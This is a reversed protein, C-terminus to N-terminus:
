SLDGIGSFFSLISNFFDVIQQWFSLLVSLFGETGATEGCVDCVGDEDEDIHGASNTDTITTTADCDDCTCTVTWYGDETCTPDTYAATDTDLVFDSQEFSHGTAPIVTEVEATCCSYTTKSLGDETCTAPTEITTATGEHNTPDLPLAVEEKYDCGEVECTTITSGQTCCTSPTTTVVYTHDETAALEITAADTTSSQTGVTLTVTYTYVGTACCTPAQYEEVIIEYDVETEEGIATELEERIEDVSTATTSFTALATEVKEEAAVAEALDAANQAEKEAETAADNYADKSGENEVDISTLKCVECTITWYGNAYANAPTYNDDEETLDALVYNYVCAGYTTGYVTTTEDCDACKVNTWTDYAICTAATYNDGSKELTDATAFTHKETAAITITAEDTTATQESVTLTVTYKYYGDDGCTEAEFSSTIVYDVTTAEEIATELATEIGTETTEETTFAELASEVASKAADLTAQDAQAKEDAVYAAYSGEDIIETKEGCVSCEVTWYGNGDANASTYTGTATGAELEAETPYTHAVSDKSNTDTVTYVENCDDATCTVTWYGDDKCTAVEYTANTDTTIDYGDVEFSHGTADITETKTESCGEVTCTYTMVGETTCTAATTVEGDDWTHAVDASSGEDTITDTKGCGYDCYATKTGDVACTADNNSTYTTFSCELASDNDVVTTEAKGCVTCTVTWYGNEQCSTAATYGDTTGELDAETKYTHAVEDKSNTDTIIDVSTCDENTCKCTWYGDTECTAPTYNDDSKDEYSHGTAAITFEGTADSTLGDVSLTFTCTFSGAKECEADVKNATFKYTITSDVSSGIVSDAAEKSTREIDEGYVVEALATEIDDAVQNLQEQSVAVEAVTATKTTSATQTGATLTVTYTMTGTTTTTAAPDIETTVAATMGDTYTAVIANIATTMAEEDSTFTLAEVTAKAAALDTTAHDVASGTNTFDKTSTCEDNTCTVTWYGDTTYTPATYNTATTDTPAVYDVADYSHGTAAIPESATIVQKCVSCSIEATSGDTTCTAAVAAKSTYTTHAIMAITGSTYELGCTDCKYIYYGTETCTAEVTEVLTGGSCTHYTLVATLYSNDTSDITVDGAVGAYYASTLSSCNKFASSGITTVSGPISITTLASDAAFAFSGISTIDSTFTVTQLATCSNFLYNPIETVGSGIVASTYQTGRFAYTGLTTVSDPIVLEGTLASAGYFAYSGISKLSNKPFTISLLNSAPRFASGGISAVGEGLVLYKISSELSGLETTEWPYSGNSTVTMEGTGEGTYLINLTGTSSDFYYVLGDGCEGYYSSAAKVDASISMATTQTSSLLASCVNDYGAGGIVGSQSVQSVYTSTSGYTVIENELTFSYVLGYSQDESALYGTVDDTTVVSGTYATSLDTTSTAHNTPCKNSVNAGAAISNSLGVYTTASAYATSGGTSLATENLYNDALSAIAVRISYSNWYGTISSTTTQGYTDSDYTQTTVLEIAAAEYLAIM